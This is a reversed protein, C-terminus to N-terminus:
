ANKFINKVESSLTFLCCNGNVLGEEKAKEYADAANETNMFEQLAKTSGCKVILGSQIGKTCIIVEYKSLEEKQEDDLLIDAIAKVASNTSDVTKVEYGENEFAKKIKDSKDACATFIAASLAVILVLSLIKALKKM